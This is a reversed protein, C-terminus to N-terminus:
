SNLIMEFIDKKWMHIWTHIFIFFIINYINITPQFPCFILSPASYLSLLSEISDLIFQILYCYPIGIRHLCYLHQIM